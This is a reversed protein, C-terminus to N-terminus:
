MRNQNQQYILLKMSSLIFEFTEQSHNITKYQQKHSKILTMQPPFCQYIMIKQKSQNTNHGDGKQQYPNSYNPNFSM